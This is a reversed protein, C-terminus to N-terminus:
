GEGGLHTGFFAGLRAWLAPEIDLTLGHGQGPWVVLEVPRGADRRRGALHLTMGHDWIEDADGVSLFMPGAFREVEIPRGPVLADDKGPWVWARPGAPDTLVASMGPRWTAPDFAEICRDAPTHAAIAAFPAGAETLEALHMAAEGGRSWGLLGVRGNCRAHAALAAGARAVGSLDAGRIPGAGFITGEGYGYPLALMGQAALIAAFRHSWGAMPGEAGHLIVVGPLGAGVAPGYVPWDGLMELTLGGM